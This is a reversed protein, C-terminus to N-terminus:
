AAAGVRPFGGVATVTGDVSVLRGPLGTRRLWGTGSPGKVLAGTSATNARVCSEAVVTAARWPSDVPAATRPDLLHHRRGEPGRWVRHGTSSTAMAAGAALSVQQPEDAPLDQVRVQWGGEPAPGATAVDGGLGVLAGTGLRAVQAAARDAAWAKATAGLDLVVGAPVLVRTEDVRVSRWDPVPTAVVRGTGRVGVARDYGLAALAAGLTPVVAGQTRRAADLAVELLEALVPSVANWGPRLRSIESDTRFRSAALEVEDLVREVADVAQPVLDPDTVVLRCRCTWREWDYTAPRLGTGRM